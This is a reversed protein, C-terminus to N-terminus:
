HSLFDRGVSPMEQPEWWVSQKLFTQQGVMQDEVSCVCEWRLETDTDNKVKGCTEMEREELCQASTSTVRKTLPLGDDSWNLAQRVRCM